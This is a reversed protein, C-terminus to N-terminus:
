EERLYVEIKKLILPREDPKFWEIDREKKFWTIQRKAYHRTKKQITKIAEDLSLKGKLVLYLEKYGIAKIRDFIEEGYNVYLNRVEELWGSEIMKLVRENIKAYLERRPLFIGIKLIPYRKKQFFPTEKQFASFTKGTTYIVELARIIRVLDNPHIKEAYEPDLKQLEQYLSKPDKSAREKLLKRVQPNSSVKFLGYEFARLYLGTGGVFIPLKGRQTIEQVLKEALEVFRGASMEEFLSIEDFLHHPIGGREEPLPKATGILLERYVQQSDFNIIEGDFVKAIDISIQTKGSGTPGCIAIIKPTKNM